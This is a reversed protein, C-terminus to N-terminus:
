FFKGSLGCGQRGLPLAIHGPCIALLRFYCCCFLGPACLKLEGVLYLIEEPKFGLVKSGGM